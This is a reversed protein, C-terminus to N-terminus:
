TLGANEFGAMNSQEKLVSQYLNITDHQLEKNIEIQLFYKRIVM